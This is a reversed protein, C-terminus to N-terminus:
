PEKRTHKPKLLQQSALKGVAKHVIPVAMCRRHVKLSDLLDSFIKELGGLQQMSLFPIFYLIITLFVFTHAIYKTDQIVTKFNWTPFSRAIFFFEVWFCTVYYNDLYRSWSRYNIYKEIKHVFLVYYSSFSVMLEAMWLYCLVLAGFWACLVAAWPFFFLAFYYILKKNQRPNLIFSDM